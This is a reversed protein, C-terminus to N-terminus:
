GRKDYQEIEFKWTTRADAAKQGQSKEIPDGFNQLSNWNYNKIYQQSFPTLDCVTQNKQGNAIRTMIDLELKSGHTSTDEVIRNCRFQIENKRLLKKFVISFSLQDFQVWWNSHHGFLKNENVSAFNIWNLKTIKKFISLLLGFLFKIKTM